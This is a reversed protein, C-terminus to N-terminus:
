LFNQLHANSKLSKHINIWTLNCSFIRMYIDLDKVARDLEKRLQSSDLLRWRTIIPCGDALKQCLDIISIFEIPKMRLRRTQSKCQMRKFRVKSLKLLKMKSMFNPCLDEDQVYSYTLSNKCMDYM